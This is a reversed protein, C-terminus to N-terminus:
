ASSIGAARCYRRYLRPLQSGAGTHLQHPEIDLWASDDLWKANPPAASKERKAFPEVVGLAPKPSGDARWLGFCREHLAVDLPPRQWIASAYDTYCWLMAGTCGCAVLAELARETYGAAAREDLLLTPCARRVREGEADGPRYTATGLETFSLERGGGLWRTVRALFPLLQEDTAGRAWPAYAPYGHMTLFDCVEAAEAPGLKRDQELDEMHLGLTVRAGPDDGRIAESVGFLWRRALERTPPVVCNSNENGLDWAWLAAHGALARALEGALRIQANRVGTDSYWNRLRARVLAKGSVVRFRADGASGGLAWGPILNVGSMHGTFLTPMVVLGAQEALDLTDVLRALMVPSAGEPAPQFDEWTLFLRVSDFEAAAIRAFDVAVESQEFHTWWAMGSRAPWYNIGLRFGSTM